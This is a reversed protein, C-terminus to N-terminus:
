VIFLPIVKGVSLGVFANLVIVHYITKSFGFQFIYDSLHLIVTLVQPADLLFINVCQGNEILRM